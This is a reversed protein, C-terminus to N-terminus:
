RSRQTTKSDGFAEQQSVTIVTTTWKSKQINYDVMDLDM